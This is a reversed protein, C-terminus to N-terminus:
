FGPQPQAGGPAPQNALGVMARVAEEKIKPLAEEPTAFTGPVSLTARAVPEQDISERLEVAVSVRYANGVPEFTYTIDFHVKDAGEPPEIFALFQEGRPPPTPNGEPLKVPQGWTPKTFETNIGNVIQTRLDNQRSDKAAEKGAPTGQETARLTVVPQDVTRVSELIKTMGDRLAPDKGNAKVHAIPDDYFKSLRKTVEDRHLQNRQDVLYARLMRPEVYPEKMVVDYIANDRVMPNVVFGMVFFIGAGFLILLIYPLISPMARGERAPQEPVETIDLEILNLNINREADLPEDGNKAVYKALGGLTGAALNAREGGEPGRAWAIYNLYVRMLEARNENNVNLTVMQNGSLLLDIVSNQYADNNFNHTVRAEVLDDIPTVTIEERYAQYLHLPDAYVWNGAYKGTGSSARFKAVLLWAGVMLGATQLFAVRIPDDYILGTWTPLTLLLTAIILIPGMVCGCGPLSDSTPIFVGPSGRGESDRVAMLYDHTDADLEEFKFTTSM